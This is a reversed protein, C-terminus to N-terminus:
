SHKQVEFTKFCCAFCVFEEHFYERFLTADMWASKQARHYVPLSSLNLNKFARPKRSTGVVFLPRKYTGSANSCAAVTVREKTVKIRSVSKEQNSALAKEPLM